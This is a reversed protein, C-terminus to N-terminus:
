SEVFLKTYWDLLNEMAPTLSAAWGLPAYLYYLQYQLWRPGFTFLWAAPGWSLVYLLLVLVCVVVVTAWFAVGPKKRSTVNV